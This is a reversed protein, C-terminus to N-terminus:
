GELFFRLLGAGPSLDEVEIGMTGSKPFDIHLGSARGTLLLSALESMWPEHGVLAVTFPEPTDDEAPMAALAPPPLETAAPAAVAATVAAAIAKLDPPAALADCTVRERKPLGMVKASIGATQWARTWPSSLIRNPRYGAERLRAMARRHRKRGKPILPRLADDPYKEPDQEDAAAHRILLLLM